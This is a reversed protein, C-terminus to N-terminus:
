SSVLVNRAASLSFMHCTSPNGDTFSPIGFSTHSLIWQIHHHQAPQALRIRCGLDCIHAQKAQWYSHFQSAECQQRRPRLHLKRVQNAPFLTSFCATSLITLFNTTRSLISWSGFSLGKWHHQCNLCLIFYYNSQIQAPFILFLTNYIRGKKKKEM